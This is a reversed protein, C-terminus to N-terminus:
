NQFHFEKDKSSERVIMKGDQVAQVCCAFVDFVTTSKKMCANDQFRASICAEYGRAM